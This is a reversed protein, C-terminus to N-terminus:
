GEAAARFGENESELARRVPRRMLRGLVPAMPGELDIVLTNRTGAASAELQHSGTMTMGMAKTSWAFQREPVLTRVTWVRERQGPQKIRVDSGVQLPADDVREIHTMTPTISPWSEVDVTLAWVEGVPAKIEETHEIRMGSTYWTTCNVALTLNTVSAM